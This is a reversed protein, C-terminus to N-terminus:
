TLRRLEELKEIDVVHRSTSIVGKQKLVAIARTVSERSLGTMLALDSHSIDRARELGRRDALSLLELAVKQVATRHVREVTAVERDIIETMARALLRPCLAPDDAVAQRFASAPLEWYWCPGAATATTVYPRGTISAEAGCLTPAAAEALFWPEDVSTRRTFWVYGNEVVLVHTAEDGERFLIARRSRVRRVMESALSTITDASALALEPVSRLAERADM